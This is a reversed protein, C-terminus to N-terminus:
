KQLEFRARLPASASGDGVTAVFESLPRVFYRKHEKSWYLVQLQDQQVGFDDQLYLRVSPLFSLHLAVLRNELPGDGTFTVEGVQMDTPGSSRNEFKVLQLATYLGRTKYHQYTGGLKLEQTAMRARRESGTEHYDGDAGSGM